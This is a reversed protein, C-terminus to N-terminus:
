YMLLTQFPNSRQECSQLFYATLEVMAVLANYDSVLVMIRESTDFSIEEFLLNGAFHLDYIIVLQCCPM